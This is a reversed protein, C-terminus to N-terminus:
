CVSVVACKVRLAPTIVSQVSKPQFMGFYIQLHVITVIGKLTKLVVNMIQIACLQKKSLTQEKAQFNVIDLVYGAM